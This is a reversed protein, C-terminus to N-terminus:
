IELSSGRTFAFIVQTTGHCACENCSSWPFDTRPTPGSRLFSWCNKQCLQHVVLQEHGMHQCRPPGTNNGRRTPCFFFLQEHGMHQTALIALMTMSIREFPRIDPKEQGNKLSSRARGFKISCSQFFCFCFWCCTTPHLHHHWQWPSMNWRDVTRFIVGPERDNLGGVGPNFDDFSWLYVCKLWSFGHRSKNKLM